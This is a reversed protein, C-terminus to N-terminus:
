FVIKILRTFSGKVRCVLTNRNTSSFGLGSLQEDSEAVKLKSGVMELVRRHKNLEPKLFENFFGRSQENNKCGDIMFFYNKNGVNPGDQGDWFNPSLMVVNVKHFTQTALNWVKKSNQSSPLSEIIEFGDAKSYKIKAVTVTQSNRLVKDYAIHHSTGDYEIEVEFGVGESRRSFNHVTLTYVGEKMQHRDSYFINEAPDDKDGDVGNADLDLMGGCPSKKSRNGYYIEYGDPEKMHFDLDDRYEWALRCCLDGIVSGGAAKVREKISDATGGNYSWSFKNAWKFLEGATPDEPAILSVFNPTHRNEVLIELSKATPLINTLFQEIPVEDIKDLTKMNVKSSTDASLADFVDGNIVQKADRDAFLINNITIDNLTAFRRSLASTLGLGEITAKAEKIMAKTVLASPRKYNMPAMVSEWRQVANELDMDASLDILLTGIATNRIRAVSEGTGTMVAQWVFIERQEDTKLKAFKSKLKKFETVAFKQEAGRYLTNQAILELVTDVAEVTLETLSRILV